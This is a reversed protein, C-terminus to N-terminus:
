KEAFHLNLAQKKAKELKRSFDQMFKKMLKICHQKDEGCLLRGARCKGYIKKLERDDEILHQKYLEFIVCKEPNGGYKRQDETTKRGGTLAKKLKKEIEDDSEPLGIFNQASKSMKLNGDLDPTYRHYISSPLTFHYSSSTRNVIDRTLRVHPDQDAGIPIIGPMRRKLQPYLIDAVQIVSSMIRPADFSGYIAKFENITAKSSLSYALQTVSSNQSQFYFVTKKPNLGLAIFAPIFYSLADKKSDELSRSRTAAAELDAVLIYTKAGQSQFYALNDIVLKNGLHMKSFSPMIGSLVYFDRKNKICDAIIKLDRGAFVVGRRMLKNPKPFLSLNFPELGFDAILSNYDEPLATGWPDIFRKKSVNEKKM